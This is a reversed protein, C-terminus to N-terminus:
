REWAAQASRQRAELMRCRGAAVVVAFADQLRAPVVENQVVAKEAVAVAERAAVSFRALQAALVWVSLALAEQRFM